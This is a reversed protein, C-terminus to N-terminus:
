SHWEGFGGSNYDSYAQSIEEETNMVFPGNAMIPENPPTAHGFIIISYESAQIDIGGADLGFEALENTEVLSKNVTVSGRVVYFLVRRNAPVPISLQGSTQIHLVALDVAYISQIPANIENFSGSVVQVHVKGNDLVVEPIESRQLGIYAPPTLKLRSPLNLWLQIIEVNGGSKKFEESSTESHMIGRGATMWQIGGAKINSTYGTNDKHVLDGQLIFTVTEFGKHPHPGFPLGNNNPIYDQPGHHNMFIFPDMREMPVKGTPMVRFTDLGNYDTFSSGSVSIVQKM